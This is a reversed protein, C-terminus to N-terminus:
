RRSTKFESNSGVVLSAIRHLDAGPIAYCVFFLGPCFDQDSHSSTRCGPDIVWSRCSRM